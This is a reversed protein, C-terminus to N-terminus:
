IAGAFGLAGILLLLIWQPLKSFTQLKFFCGGVVIFVLSFVIFSVSIGIVLNKYLTLDFWGIYTLVAGALVLISSVMHWCGLLTIKPVDPLESKLFPRVTDVQGAFIHVLATFLCVIGATFIWVNM